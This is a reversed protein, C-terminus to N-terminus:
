RIYHDLIIDDKYGPDDLKINFLFREMFSILYYPRFRRWQIVTKGHSKEAIWKFYKDMRQSLEPQLNLQKNNPLRVCRWYETNSQKSGSMELYVEDSIWFATHEVLSLSDVLLRAPIHKTGFLFAQTPGCKTSQVRWLYTSNTDCDSPLTRSPATISYDHCFSKKNGRQYSSINHSAQIQSLIYLLSCAAIFSVVQFILLLIFCTKTKM